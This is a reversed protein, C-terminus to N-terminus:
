RPSSKPLRKITTSLVGYKYTFGLFDISKKRLNTLKTKEESLTLKFQAALKRQIIQKWKEANGKTDTILVWDDCYRILYAPKLRSRLKLARMRGRTYAYHTKTHKNEWSKAIFWDFSNLYVNALLPSIIGGQQTGMPNVTVENMVGAKLMQKIIMLVRCDRIGMHWLQKILKTHNITDFYQKIDGEVVWSHGTNHVLTTTRAMAMATDRYPRFGYSHPFFQAELIPELIMRVCEQVVRDTATPIGLKRMQNSGPKPISQRRIPKPHYNELSQQITRIVQQYPLELLNRM